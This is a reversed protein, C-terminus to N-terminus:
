RMMLSVFFSADSVARASSRRGGGLFTPTVGSVLFIRMVVEVIDVTDVIWYDVCVRV